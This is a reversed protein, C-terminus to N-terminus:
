PNASPRRAASCSSNVRLSSSIGVGDLLTRHGKWGNWRSAVVFRLPGAHSDTADVQGAGADREARGARSPAGRGAACRRRTRLDRDSSSLFADAFGARDPRIWVLNGAGARDGPGPHPDTRRSRRSLRRQDRLLCRRPGGCALRSRGHRGARAIAAPRATHPVGAPRDTPRHASRGRRTAGTGRLAATRRAAPGDAALGRRRPGGQDAPLAEIWELLMRDAGYLEDSSHIFILPSRM